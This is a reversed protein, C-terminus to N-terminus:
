RFMVYLALAAIGPNPVPGARPMLSIPAPQMIGYNTDRVPHRPQRFWWDNIEGRADWPMAPNPVPAERAMIGTDHRVPHRPQEFWWDM